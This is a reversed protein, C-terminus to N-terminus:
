TPLASANGTRRCQSKKLWAPTAGAAARRPRRSACTRPAPPSRGGVEAGAPVGVDLLEATRRGRMILACRVLDREDLVGALADADDGVADVPLPAVADDRGGDFVRGVDVRPHFDDARRPAFSTITGSSVSALPARCTGSSFIRSAASRGASALEDRERVDLEGAALPVVQRLDACNQRSFPLSNQTSAIWDSPTSGTSTCAIFM